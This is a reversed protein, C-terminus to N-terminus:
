IEWFSLGKFDNASGLSNESHSPETSLRRCVDASSFGSILGYRVVSAFTPLRGRMGRDKTWRQNSDM